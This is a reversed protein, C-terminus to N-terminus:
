VESQCTDSPGPRVFLLCHIPVTFFFTVDVQCWYTAVHAGHSHQSAYLCCKLLSQRAEHCTVHAHPSKEDPVTVGEEDCWRECALSCLSQCLCTMFSLSSSLTTESEYVMRTLVEQVHSLSRVGTSAELFLFSIIPVFTDACLQQMSLLPVGSDPKLCLDLHLRLIRLIDIM